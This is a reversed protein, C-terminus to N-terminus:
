RGAVALDAEARQPKESRLVIHDGEIDVMVLAGAHFEKWLIRESLPDEV